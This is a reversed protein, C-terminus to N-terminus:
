YSCLEEKKFCKRPKGRMVRTVGKGVGKGPYRREPREFHGKM